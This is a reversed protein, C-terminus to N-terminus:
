TLPFEIDPVLLTPISVSVGHLAGLLSRLLGIHGGSFRALGKEIDETLYPCPQMQETILKVVELAEDQDLLLGVPTLLHAQFPDYDGDARLSIQQEPAFILPTQTHTKESFGVFGRGPSGYSTFLLIYPWRSDYREIRKFLDTWLAADWYSVQAEDIILYAPYTLWKDGHVGTEHELYAGWGGKGDVKSENWDTLVYIPKEKGYNELLQNVVLNM